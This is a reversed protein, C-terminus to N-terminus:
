RLSVPWARQCADAGAGRCLGRGGRRRAREAGRDRPQPFGRRPHRRAADATGARGAAGRGLHRPCAGRWCAYLRYRAAGDGAQAGGRPDSGGRHSRDEPIEVSGPHRPLSRQSRGKHGPEVRGADGEIKGRWRGLAGLCAAREQPAHYDLAAGGLRDLAAGRRPLRADQDAAPGRRRAQLHRPARGCACSRGRDHRRRRRHHRHAPPRRRRHLHRGPERRCRDRERGAGQGRERATRGGRRRRHPQRGTRPAPPRAHAISCQSEFSRGMTAAAAASRHLSIAPTGM